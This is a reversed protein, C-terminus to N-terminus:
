CVTCLNSDQKTVCEPILLLIDRRFGGEDEDLTLRNGFKEM